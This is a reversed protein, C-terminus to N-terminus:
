TNARLTSRAQHRVWVPDRLVSPRRLLALGITQAALLLFLAGIAAFPWLAAALLRQRAGGLCQSHIILGSVDISAWHFVRVWRTFDPPLRVGYVPGLVAWIQFFGLALKFKASLNLQGLVVRLQRARARVVANRSHRARLYLWGAGEYCWLLAVAVALVVGVTQGTSWCALCRQDARSFYHLAEECVECRPGTMGPRCYYNGSYPVNYRGDEGPQGTHLPPPHGLDSRSGASDGLCASDSFDGSEPCV